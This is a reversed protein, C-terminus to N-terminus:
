MAPWASETRGVTTLPPDTASWGVNERDRNQACTCSERADIKM